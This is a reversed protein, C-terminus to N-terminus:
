NQKEFSFVDYVSSKFQEAIDMALKLSPIYLGKEMRIITERCVGVAEALHQQTMNDRSRLEKIRTKM